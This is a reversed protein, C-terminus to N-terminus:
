AIKKLLGRAISVWRNGKMRSLALDTWKDSTLALGVQEHVTAGPAGQISLPWPGRPIITVNPYEALHTALMTSGSEVFILQIDKKAASAVFASAGKCSESCPFVHFRVRGSAIWDSMAASWGLPPAIPEESSIVVKRNSSVPGVTNEIRRWLPQETPARASIRDALERNWPAPSDDRCALAFLEATQFQEAVRRVVEAEAGELGVKKAAELLRERGTPSLHSPRTELHLLRMGAANMLSDLSKPSFYHLHTPYMFNEDQERGLIEDVLFLGNPVCVYLIGREALQARVARLSDLPRPMHELVHLMTVLHLKRTSDAFIEEFPAASVADGLIGSVKEIWDRNIDHGTAHMGAQRLAHVLNGMACGYDHTELQQATCGYQRVTDILHKAVHPLDPRNYERELDYHAASADPYATQYHHDLEEDTPIPDFRCYGCDTCQKLISHTNGCTREFANSGEVYPTLESCFKSHKSKTATPTSRGREMALDRYDKANGLILFPDALKPSTMIELFEDFEPHEPNGINDRAFEEPSLSGFNRIMNLQVHQFNHSRCFDIFSPIQRFNATQVTFYSILVLQDNERRITKIFEIAKVLDEWISGRRIKEFSEKECSDMSLSIIGIRGALGFEEYTERTFLLGNTMLNIRFAAPLEVRGYFESEKGALARLLRRFHKSAFPDGSGSVILRDADKVLGLFVPVLRDYEMSEKRTAIITHTRCSPCSINCSNDHTMMLERPSKDMYQKIDSQPDGDALTLVASKEMGNDEFWQRDIPELARGVRREIQRQLDDLTYSVLVNDELNGGRLPQGTPVAYVRTRLYYISYDVYGRDIEYSLKADLHAPLTDLKRKPLLRGQIMPCTLPSCYKFEGGIISRRIHQAQPSNWAVEDVSNPDIKSKGDLRLLPTLDAAPPTLYDPSCLYVQKDSTTEFHEFPRGCYSRELYEGLEQDHNHAASGLRAKCQLVLRHNYIDHQWHSFGESSYHLGAEFDGLEIARAAYLNHAVLKLRRTNLQDCEVFAKLLSALNEDLVGNERLWDRAADCRFQSDYGGQDPAVALSGFVSTDVAKNIVRCLSSFIEDSGTTKQQESEALVQTM